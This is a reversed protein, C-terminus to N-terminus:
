HKAKTLHESFTMKIASSGHTQAIDNMTQGGQNMHMPDTGAELLFRCMEPQGGLIAERLANEGYDDQANVDAGHEVLLKAAEFRGQFAAQFLPTKGFGSSRINMDAGRSILLKMTEIAGKRVAFYLLADQNNLATNRLNPDVGADLQARVFDVDGIGESTFLRQAATLPTSSATKDCSALSIFGVFAAVIGLAGLSRDMRSHYM